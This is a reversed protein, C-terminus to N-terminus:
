LHTIIVIMMMMMMMMMSASTGIHHVIRIIIGFIGEENHTIIGRRWLTSANLSSARRVDTQRM